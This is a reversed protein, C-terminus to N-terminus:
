VFSVCGLSPALADSSTVLPMVVLLMIAILLLFSSPAGPRVVLLLFAILLLFSSTVLGEPRWTPRGDGFPSPPRGPAGCQWACPAVACCVLSYFVCLTTAM